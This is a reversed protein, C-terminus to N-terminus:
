LFLPPSSLIISFFILKPSIKIWIKYFKDYSLFMYYKDIREEENKAYWKICTNRLNTM